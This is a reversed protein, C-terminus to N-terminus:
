ECRLLLSVKELAQYIKTAIPRNMQERTSISTKLEFVRHKRTDLQRLLIHKSSIVCWNVFVGELCATKWLLHVPWIDGARFTHFFSRLNPWSKEKQRGLMKVYNFIKEAFITELGV